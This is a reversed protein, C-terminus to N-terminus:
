MASSKMEWKCTGAKVAYNFISSPQTRIARATIDEYDTRKYHPSTRPAPPAADPSDGPTFVRIAAGRGGIVYGSIYIKKAAQLRILAKKIATPSLKNRGSCAAILEPGTAPLLAFVTMDSALCFDPGRVARRASM